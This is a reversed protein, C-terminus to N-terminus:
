KASAAVSEPNLQIRNVVSNIGPCRKAIEVALRRDAVTAVFGWLIITGHQVETRVRRLRQHGEHDIRRRLSKNLERDHKRDDFMHRIRNKVSLGKAIRSM